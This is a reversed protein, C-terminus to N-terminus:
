ASAKTKPAAKGVPKPASTAIGALKSAFERQADLLREAYGFARDIVEAPPPLQDVFPLSPPAPLADAVKQAVDVIADQSAKVADLVKDQIKDTYELV